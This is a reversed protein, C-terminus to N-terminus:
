HVYGAKVYLDISHIPISKEFSKHLRTLQKDNKLPEAESRKQTAMMSFNM